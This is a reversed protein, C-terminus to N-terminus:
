SIGSVEQLLFFNPTPPICLREADFFDILAIGRSDNCDRNVIPGGSLASSKMYPLLRM